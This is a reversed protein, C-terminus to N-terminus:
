LSVLVSDPSNCYAYLDWSVTMFLQCLGQNHMEQFASKTCIKSQLFFWVSYFSKTVLGAQPSSRRHRLWPWLLSLLLNSYFCKQKLKETLPHNSRIHCLNGTLHDGM